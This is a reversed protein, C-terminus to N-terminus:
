GAYASRSPRARRHRQRRRQRHSRHRRRGAAGNLGIVGRQRARGVDLHVVIEGIDPNGALKYFRHQALMRRDGREHHAGRSRPIISLARRLVPEATESIILRCDQVCVHKLIKTVGTETDVSVHLDAAASTTPTQVMPNKPDHAGMETIKNVGLRCARKLQAKAPNDKVRIRGDVAELQDPPVGLAPAVVAFLKELANVTAKRTSSSVGGVTTSGGSGGSPPYQNDGIKVRIAGVPLGLTEAATM